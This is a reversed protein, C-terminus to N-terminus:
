LREVVEDVKGSPWDIAAYSPLQLRRWLEFPDERVRDTLFLAMVTGHTVIAVNKSEGHARMVTEVARDFRERAADATEKGLVLRHPENFFLAIMSIFERTPMVPVNSRDHEHLNDSSQCPIGLVEAVIKGTEEAKPETSTIVLDIGRDRLREALVRADERGREALHWLHSPKTVDKLPTAHKILILKSM